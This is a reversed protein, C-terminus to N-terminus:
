HPRIALTKLVPRDSGAKFNGRTHAALPATELSFVKSTLRLKERVARDSGEEMNSGSLLPRHANATNVCLPACSIVAGYYFVGFTIPRRGWCSDTHAVRAVHKLRGDNYSTSQSLYGVTAYRNTNKISYWARCGVIKREDRPKQKEHHYPIKRMRM